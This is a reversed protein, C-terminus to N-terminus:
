KNRRLLSGYLTRFAFRRYEEITMGMNKAIEKKKRESIQIIGSLSSWIYLVTPKIELEDKLVKTRQGKLLLSAIMAYLKQLTEPLVAEGRKRSNTVKDEFIFSAFYKPYQECFSVLCDCLQYYSDEFSENAEICLSLEGLLVELYDVVISNYIDEKSKFYVYITSKSYDALGAIDDMTTEQVGKTEFLERAANLINERNFQELALRKRAGM